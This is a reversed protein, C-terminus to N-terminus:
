RILQIGVPYRFDRGAHAHVTGLVVFVINAAALLILYPVGICAFIGTFCLATGFLGAILVLLQFNLSERAQVRVYERDKAKTLLILLPPLFGLVLPLYGLFTLLHALMAWDRDSETPRVAADPPDFAIRVSSSM